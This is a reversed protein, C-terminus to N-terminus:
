PFLIIENRLRYRASLSERRALDMNALIGLDTYTKVNEDTALFHLSLGGKSIIWWNGSRKVSNRGCISLFLIRAWIRDYRRGDTGSRRDAM